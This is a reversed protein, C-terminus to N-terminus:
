GHVRVVNRSNREGRVEPSIRAVRSKANVVSHSGPHPGYNRKAMRTGDGDTRCLAAAGVDGRLPSFADVTANLFSDGPKFTLKPRM